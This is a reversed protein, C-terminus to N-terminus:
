VGSKESTEYLTINDDSDYGLERQNSVQGIDATVLEKCKAVMEVFLKRVNGTQFSKIMNHRPVITQIEKHVGKSMQRYANAANEVDMKLPQGFCKNTSEKFAKVLILIVDCALMLFLRTTALIIIPANIAGSAVMIPAFIGGSLVTLVLATTSVGEALFIAFNHGMDEWIVAKVIEM